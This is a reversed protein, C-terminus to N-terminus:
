KFATKLSNVVIKLRDAGCIPPATPPAISVELVQLYMSLVHRLAHHFARPMGSCGVIIVRSGSPSLHLRSFFIRQMFEAMAEYYCCYDCHRGDTGILSFPYREISRPASEGLLGVAIFSTGFAMLVRRQEGHGDRMRQFSVEGVGM